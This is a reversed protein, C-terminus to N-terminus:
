DRPMPVHYPANVATSLEALLLAILHENRESASYSRGLGAAEIILAKLLECVEIVRCARRGAFALQETLYLTRISVHGRCSVEHDVFAPIWIARQPPIVYNADETTVSMVGTSAYLLQDRPHHHKPDVFGPSYEDRLGIVPSPTVEADLLSPM